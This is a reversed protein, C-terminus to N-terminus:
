YLDRNYEELTEGAEKRIAIREELGDGYESDFRLAYFADERAKRVEKRIKNIIKDNTYKIVLRDAEGRPERTAVKKLEKYEDTDFFTKLKERFLEGTRKHVFDREDDTMKVVLPIKIEQYSASTTREEKVQFDDGPDAIDIHWLALEKAVPDNKATNYVRADVMINGFLDRRPKLSSSLGPIRELIVDLVDTKYRQTDDWLMEAQGVASPVISRLYNKAWSGSYNTPDSIAKIMAGLGSMWAKNTINYGLIGVWEFTQELFSQEASEPRDMSEALSATVGLLTAMPEYHDYRIVTDGIRCSYPHIDAMAYIDRIRKNNSINGTCTGAKVLAYIAMMMSMGMAQRAMVQKRRIGGAAWDEKNRKAILGVGPTREGVWVLSNSAIKFFPVAFRVLDGRMAAQWKRGGEGMTQTLTIERAHQQAAAEMDPHPNHVMDAIFNALDDGRHGAELGQVWGQEWLYQYRAATKGVADGMSLQRPGLKGLQAVAAFFDFAQDLQVGLGIDKDSINWAESSFPDQFSKAGRGQEIKGSGFMDEISKFHDWGTSWAELNHAFLAFVGANAQKTMDVGADIIPEAQYGEPKNPDIDIRRKGALVSATKLESTYIALQETIGAINKVGTWPGSLILSLWWQFVSDGFLKVRSMERVFQAKKAISPKDKYKIMLGLVNTEGNIAELFEFANRSDLKNGFTVPIQAARMARAVEARAGTFSRMLHTLFQYQQFFQTQDKANPGEDRAFAKNVLNDLVKIENVLMEKGALMIAGLEGPKKIDFKISGGLFMKALAKPNMGWMDAMDRLAQDTVASREKPALTELKKATHDYLVQATNYLGADQPMKISEPDLTAVGDVTKTGVARLSGILGDKPLAPAGDATFAIEGDRLDQLFVNVDENTTKLAQDYQTHEMQISHNLAVPGEPEPGLDVSEIKTRNEEMQALAAPGFAKRDRVFEQAQKKSGRGRFRKLVQPRGPVAHDVVEIAGDNREITEYRKQPRIVERKVEGEGEEKVSKEVAGEIREQEERKKQLLDYAQDLIQKTARGTKGAGGAAKSGFKGLGAMALQVPDDAPETSDITAPQDLLVTSPDLLSEDAPQTIEKAM